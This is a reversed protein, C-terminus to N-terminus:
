PAAVRPSLLWDTSTVPLHRRRRYSSTHSDGTPDRWRQERRPRATHFIQAEGVTDSTLRAPRQRHTLAPAPPPRRRPFDGAALYDTRHPVQRRHRHSTAHRNPPKRPRRPLPMTGPQLVQDARAPMVTELADGLLPQQQDQIESTPHTVDQRLRK